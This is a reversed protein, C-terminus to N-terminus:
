AVVLYLPLLLHVNHLPFWGAIRGKVLDVRCGTDRLTSPTGRNPFSKARRWRLSVRVLTPGHTGRKVGGRQM